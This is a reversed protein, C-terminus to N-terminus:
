EESQNPAQRFLPPTCADSGPEREEFFRSVDDLLEILQETRGQGLHEILESMGDIMASEAAETAARGADTLRIRVVRRDTPDPCRELLGRAELVNVTQTASPMAIRLAGSLESVKLGASGHKMARYLVFLMITESKTSGDIPQRGRWHVNRLQRFARVLEYSLNRHKTM